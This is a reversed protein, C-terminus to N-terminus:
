ARGTVDTVPWRGPTASPAPKLSEALVTAWIFAGILTPVIQIIYGGSLVRNMDNLNSM